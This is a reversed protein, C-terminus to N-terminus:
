PYAFCRVYGSTTRQSYKPSCKCQSNLNEHPSDGFEVDVHTPIKNKFNDEQVLKLLRGLGVSIWFTHEVLCIAGLIGTVDWEFGSFLNGFKLWNKFQGFNQISCCSRENGDKDGDQRWEIREGEGGSNENGLTFGDCLGCVHNPM